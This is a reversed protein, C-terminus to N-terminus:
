EGTDDDNRVDGNDDDDEEEDDDDSDEDENTDYMNECEDGTDCCGCLDTCNLGAKRCQCRNTACREKVCNCKVLHIIADPAPSLTTM